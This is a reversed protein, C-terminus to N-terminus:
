PSEINMFHTIGQYAKQSHKSEVFEFQYTVYAKVWEKGDTVIVWGGQKPLNDNDIKIWKM